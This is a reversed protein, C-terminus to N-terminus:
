SPSRGTLHKELFEIVRTYADLQNERRTIHHGEDEYVVLEVTRGQARLTSRLEEAEEVPVRVDRRGHLLLLPCAIREARRRPSLRELVARDTELRGYEDERLRRRWVSTRELFTVLDSIGVIVAAAGVSGPFEVLTLLTLYGGYSGGFLGIQGPPSWGREGILDLVAQVDRACSLRHAGDDLHAYTKGYGTSGRVNPEIVRWGRERLASRLPDFHPRAQAEPGGHLHVVTGRAPGRPEYVMVPVELGGELPVRIERPLPGVGPLRLPPRFLPREKGTTIDRLYLDEGDSDSSIAYVFRSGEPLWELAGVVGRPGSSFVREEGTEPNWLHVESFGRRNVTLAVEPGRPNRRVIEVDGDYARLVEPSTSGPRYRVLALHERGPNAAALIGGDGFDASLVWTEEAGPNLPIASRGEPLLWLERDLFTRARSVVVAEASARLVDNWSGNSLLIRPPERRDVDVEVIDFAEPVTSTSPYVYRHGDRWHGPRNRVGAPTPLLRIGAERAPVDRTEVLVFRANEDGKEDYGLIARSGEPAAELDGVREPSDWLLRGRGSRLDLAYARPIGSETSLYLIKVGDATPSPGLRRPISLWRGLTTRPPEPPSNAGTM